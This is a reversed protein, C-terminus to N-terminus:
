SPSAVFIDQLLPSWRPIVADVSSVAILYGAGDLAMVALMAGTLKLGCRGSSARCAPAAVTRSRRWAYFVSGAYALALSLLM